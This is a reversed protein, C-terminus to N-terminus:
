GREWYAYQGAGATVSSVETRDVADTNDVDFEDVILPLAIELEAAARTFFVDAKEQWQGRQSGYSEQYLLGLAYFTGPLTLRSPVIPRLYSAATAATLSSSLTLRAWHLLSNNVTRRSWADPRQWSVLGGGSLSKSASALTGDALSTVSTWAGAWVRVALTCTNANVADLVGVQVGRFPDRSGLYIMATAPAAFITALPLDGDTTDGSATTYDTYTAGDYGWVADPVKRIAHQHLRYGAQEVRQALWDVAVARKDTLASVGFDTLALRDIALLDLDTLIDSPTWM